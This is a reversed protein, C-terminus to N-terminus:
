ILYITKSKKKLSIVIAQQKPKTKQKKILNNSKIIESKSSEGRTRKTRKKPYTSKETYNIIKKPM